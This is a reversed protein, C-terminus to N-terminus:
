CLMLTYSSYEKTLFSIVRLYKFAKQVIQNYTLGQGPKKLLVKAEAVGLTLSKREFQATGMSAAHFLKTQDSVAGSVM